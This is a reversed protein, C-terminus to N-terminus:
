QIGRWTYGNNINQINSYTTNFFESLNRISVKNKLFKILRVDETKMKSSSSDAGTRILGTNIAHTINEKHTCWELNEIRNDSKIGNIHNVCPKNEPNPIFTEAVLRHIYCGKKNRFDVQCYGTKKPNLSITRGKYPREFVIGTKSVVKVMRPISKLNGLSSIELEQEFGKAPRWQEFFLGKNIM